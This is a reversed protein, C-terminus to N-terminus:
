VNWELDGLYAPSQESVKGQKELRQLQKTGPNASHRLYSAPKNKGSPQADRSSLFKYTM